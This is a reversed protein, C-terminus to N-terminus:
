HTCITGQAKRLNNIRTESMKKRTEVSAKRGKMRKSHNQKQEESQPIGKNWSVQGPLFSGANRM